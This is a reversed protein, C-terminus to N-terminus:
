KNETEGKHFTKTYKDDQKKPTMIKKIRVKYEKKSAQFGKLIYQVDANESPRSVKTLINTMLEPNLKVKLEDFPITLDYMAVIKGDPLARMWGLSKSFRKTGLRPDKMFIKLWPNIDDSISEMSYADLSSAREKIPPTAKPSKGTVRPSAVVHPINQGQDQVSKDPHQVGSALGIIQINSGPKLFYERHKKGSEDHAVVVYNDYYDDITIRSVDFEYDKEFQKYGRSARARIRKGKLQTNISQEFKQKIQETTGDLSRQFGAFDKGLDYSQGQLIAYEVICKLPIM